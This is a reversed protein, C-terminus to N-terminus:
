RGVVALAAVSILVEPGLVRRIARHCALLTAGTTFVDDILLIHRPSGHRRCFRHLVKQRVAFASSVNAQREEPSLSTQSRTRRRRVLLRACVPVALADAVGQAVVEAQNYGRRLKRLWHLPVPVVLDVPPFSNGPGAAQEYPVAFGAESSVHGGFLPSSALRRGLLSAFYKGVAFNRHYKLARTICRYDGSYFFLAAAFSFPEYLAAGSQSRGMEDQRDLLAQIRENFRMAMPNSRVNWYWTQPLDSLCKMCICDEKLILERGCVVCVRPLALDAIARFADGLSLRRIREDIQWNM